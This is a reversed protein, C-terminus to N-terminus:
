EVFVGVTGEFRGGHSLVEVTLYHLGRYATTEWHEFHKHRKETEITYETSHNGRDNGAQQLAEAGHNTVRCRITYPLRPMFQLRPVFRIWKEKGVPSSCPPYATGTMGRREEHVEADIRLPQAQGGPGPLALLRRDNQGLAGVALYGDGGFVFQRYDVPKGELDTHNPTVFPVQVERGGQTVTRVSLLGEPIDLFTRISDGLMIQNRGAAHQLKAAVDVFFSTATVEDSSPYGYSSWLVDSEAGYDLGIRVGFEHDFGLAALKPAVV